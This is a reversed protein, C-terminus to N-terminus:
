EADMALRFGLDRLRVNHPTNYRKSTRCNSAYCCWSGGRVVRFNGKKPGKPNDYTQARYSGYWDECWEMVNGSMDYIELENHFPTSGVKHTNKESNGNHWAIENVINSGSFKYSASRNGGRAAYEWEAETPLRYNKGTLKNLKAIFQQVDNWSVKEVPLNKGKFYSPNNGMVAKWQAQTVEYKGIYYNKITVRHLPKEDNDIEDGQEASAGMRFAGGEVFVMDFNLVGATETKSSQLIIFICIVSVIYLIKTKM